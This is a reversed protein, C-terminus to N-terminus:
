RCCSTCKMSHMKIRRLFNHFELVPTATKQPTPLSGDATKREIMRAMQRMEVELDNMNAEYHPALPQVVDFKM